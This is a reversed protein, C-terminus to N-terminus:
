TNTVDSIVHQDDTQTDAIFRANIYWKFRTPCNHIDNHSVCVNRLFAKHLQTKGTWVAFCTLSCFQFGALIRSKIKCLDNMDQLRHPLPCLPFDVACQMGSGAMFSKVHESRTMPLPLHWVKSHRYPYWWVTSYHMFMVLSSHWWNWTISTLLTNREKWEVM